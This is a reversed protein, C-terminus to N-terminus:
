LEPETITWPTPVHISAYHLNIESAKGVSRTQSSWHTPMLPTLLMNGELPPSCPPQSSCSGAALNEAVHFFVPRPLLCKFKLGHFCTNLFHSLKQICSFKMEGSIDQKVLPYHGFRLSNLTRM